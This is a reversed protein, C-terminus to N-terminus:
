CNSVAVGKQSAHGGPSASGEVARSELEENERSKSRKDSRNKTKEVIRNNSYKGGQLVHLLSIYLFRIGGRGPLYPVSRLTNVPWRDGEESSRICIM